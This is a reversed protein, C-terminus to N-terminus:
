SWFCMWFPSALLECRISDSTVTFCRMVVSLSESNIMEGKSSFHVNLYLDGAVILLFPLHSLWTPVFFLQFLLLKSVQRQWAKWNEAMVNLSLSLILPMKAHILFQLKSSVVVVSKSADLVHIVPASYRPAIKVATHTRWHFLFLTLMECSSCCCFFGLGSSIFGAKICLGCSWFNFAIWGDAICHHNFVSKLLYVFVELLILSNWERM